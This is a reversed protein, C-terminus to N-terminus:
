PRAGTRSEFLENAPNMAEALGGCSWVQLLKGGHAQARADTLPAGLTALAAASGAMTKLFGRRCFGGDGNEM